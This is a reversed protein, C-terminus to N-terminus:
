EGAPPSVAHYQGATPRSLTTVQGNPWRVEIAEVEAASGLGFHAVTDHQARHSDGTVILRVQTGGAQRVTVRAGVPSPNGSSENLRVGIWHGVDSLTNQYVQLTQKVEPWAEFTTVVLDIRGDGDLDGTVVNRSDQEIAVGMLHGIERFAAGGQNWFLRNKEYGGYSQGRGRTRAFKGGFYAQRVVDDKSLGVYIDHRWFEPEYDRVSERTEHGTAIAVDPFGDNDFDFASCGWSWGSHAISANMASGCVFRASPGTPSGQSGGARQAQGDTARKKQGSVNERATGLYLRNGETMRPIMAAYDPHESRVLGLHHIRFAAPCHMGTVLLDLRGDQNFDALTHAMGFGRSEALWEATVDRFRGRGDNAYLDVGAFDSVVLLDVDGDEDLDVFSGSYSRRWRKAGLGAADTADRFRGQGDNLLLYAPHGDNADYYPTPMQGRTYPGKYQGLWVDLDGDGDVDGCTLVQGYKLHPEIRWVPQGPEDFTGQASGRFLYLGEFKACLFDAAGDRDFDAIIGTFILGPDHRCLPASAFSGDPRRRFVLNRAALVIEPLGDGDLDHLIVPDIFFSKEPPAIRENLVRRFPPDGRRTQLTLGRADIRKVQPEGDATREAAWDVRLDGNLSARQNLQPNVLNATFYFVSQRPQGGADVEFQNHRFETQVLQWGAQQSAALLQRWQNTSWTSGGGSPNRAEIGHGLRDAAGWQPVTLEGTPLGALVAFRDPAANLADWWQEFVQGCQEALLEKAWVTEAVQQERAELATLQAALERMLDERSPGRRFRFWAAVALVVALVLFLILRLRYPSRSPM